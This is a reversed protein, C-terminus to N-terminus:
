LQSVDTGAIKKAGRQNNEFRHPNSSKCQTSENFQINMMRAVIRKKLYSSTFQQMQWCYHAERHPWYCFLVIESQDSAALVFIVKVFHINETYEDPTYM